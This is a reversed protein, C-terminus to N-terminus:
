SSAPSLRFLDVHAASEHHAHRRNGDEPNAHQQQGRLWAFPEGPEAVEDLWRIRHEHDDYAARFQHRTHAVGDGISSLGPGLQALYLAAPHKDEPTERALEIDRSEFPITM